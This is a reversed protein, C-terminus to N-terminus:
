ILDRFIIRKEKLSYKAIETLARWWPRERRKWIEIELKLAKNYEIIEGCRSKCRARVADEFDRNCEIKKGREIEKLRNYEDVDIIIKENSM